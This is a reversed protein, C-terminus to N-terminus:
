FACGFIATAKCTACTELFSNIPSRTEFCQTEIRLQYPKARHARQECEVQAEIEAAKNAERKAKSKAVAKAWPWANDHCGTKETTLTHAAAINGSLLFLALLTTNLVKM